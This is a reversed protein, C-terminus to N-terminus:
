KASLAKSSPPYLFLVAVTQTVAANFLTVESWGEVFGSLKMSQEESPEVRQRIETQQDARVRSTVRCMDPWDQVRSCDKFSHTTSEERIVLVTFIHLTSCLNEWVSSSSVTTRKWGATGITRNSPKVWVWIFYRNPNNERNKMRLELIYIRIEQQFEHTWKELFCLTIVQDSM